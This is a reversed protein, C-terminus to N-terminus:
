LASGMPLHIFLIKDSFLAGCTPAEDCCEDTKSNAQGPRSRPTGFARWEVNGYWAGGGRRSSSAMATVTGGSLTCRPMDIPLGMAWGCPRRESFVSGPCIATTTPLSPQEMRKLAPKAETAAGPPAVTGTPIVPGVNPRSRWAGAPACSGKPVVTMLNGREPWGSLAICDPPVIGGDARDCNSVVHFGLSM